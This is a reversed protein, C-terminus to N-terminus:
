PPADILEREAVAADDRIIRWLTHELDKLDPDDASRGTLPRDIRFIERVRGPRRSLVVIQQGLRVAEALNHTVYVTTTGARGILTVFEDTLLHDICADVGILHEVVLKRGLLNRGLELCRWGDFFSGGFLDVCIREGVTLETFLCGSPRTAGISRIVLVSQVLYNGQAGAM